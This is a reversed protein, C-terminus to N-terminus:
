RGHPRPRYAAIIVGTTLTATDALEFAATFGAHNLSEGPRDTGVLVPHIWLRLEDLLGHRVLMRSVPGFGYQLIDLGDREKLKTIEAVAEDRPIATTDGWGPKRLSDSVVYHPLTTMRVGFDGAADGMAPWAQSFGDFTRRGMLLAGCSFLLDRAYAAAEDQFYPATWDHPRQVVGDLSVYTSSIIKRM